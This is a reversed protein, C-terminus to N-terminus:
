QPYSVIKTPQKGFRDGEGAHAVDSQRLLVMENVIWRFIGLGIIGISVM